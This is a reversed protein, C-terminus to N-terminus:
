VVKYIYVWSGKPSWTMPLKLSTILELKESYPFRKLTVVRAGKALKTMKEMLAKMLDESFCTSCMYIITADSFDEKLINGYRLDLKRNKDVLGMKRLHNLATLAQAHRDKSLEIGVSKKINTDLYFQVVVKGNGSGLDYFVDSAKPKLYNIVEKVSSIEIEGYTPAGGQKEVEKRDETSARFACLDKYTDNIVQASDVSKAPEAMAWNAVMLPVCFLKLIRM